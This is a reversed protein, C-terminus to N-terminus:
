VVGAGEAGVTASHRRPTDHQGWLGWQRGLGLLGGQEDQRRATGVGSVGKEQKAGLWPKRAEGLVSETCFYAIHGIVILVLAIPYMWHIRLHFVQVGICVGWFNGTLLSLNFFAASSLRFMIPALSYFLTLVLTYGTLYGGVAGNWTASRFSGRDFIAAQIGNIFMAWFSLQGIVEYVPKKSVLFEQFVNDLGYFTAGGLAWLDGRVSYPGGNAGTIHDSALLVGTGGICIIIGVYQMVHYRVGLFLLSIIVVIVIAWFNILQCSLINTYRYALVTFYNGEM